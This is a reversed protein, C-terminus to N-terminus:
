TMSTYMTQNYEKSEDEKSLNCGIVMPTSVNKCDEMEFKNLM